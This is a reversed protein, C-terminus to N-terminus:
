THKNWKLLELLCILRVKGLIVYKKDLKFIHYEFVWIVSLSESLNSIIGFLPPKELGQITM